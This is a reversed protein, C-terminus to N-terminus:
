SFPPVGAVGNPMTARSASPKARATKWPVSHVVEDRRPRALQSSERGLRALRHRVRRPGPSPARHGDRHAPRPRWKACLQQRVRLRSRGLRASLLQLRDRHPDVAPLPADPFPADIDVVASSGVTPLVIKSQRPAANFYVEGAPIPVCPDHSAAASKNSWSRQLTFTAEEWEVGSSGIGECLDGVEGGAIPWLQNSTMYYSLSGVGIDPDTSAEIIEHSAAITLDIEKTNCRPIIAYAVTIPVNNANPLVISNHYGDFSSCSASGDLNITVSAPFYIVYITDDEPPPFDPTFTGAEPAGADGASGTVHLRIYDQLSSPAGRSSDDYSTDPADAIVVHGGSTGQGICTKDSQCYEPSVTGWWSTNTIVDGLQQLRGVLAPDDGAFTVTVIKPSALIRGGNYDVLPIPTHDAPYVGADVVDAFAENSADGGGDGTAGSDDGCGVLVILSALLFALRM